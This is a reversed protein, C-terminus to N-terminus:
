TCLIIIRISKYVVNQQTRMPVYNERMVRLLRLSLQGYRKAAYYMRINSFRESARVCAISICGVNDKELQFCVYNFVETSYRKRSFTCHLYYLRFHKISLIIMFVTALISEHLINKVFRFQEKENSIFIIIQLYVAALTRAM